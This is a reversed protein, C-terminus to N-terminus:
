ATTDEAAEEDSLHSSDKNEDTRRQEKLARWQELTVVVERAQSGKYDGVLGDEAM